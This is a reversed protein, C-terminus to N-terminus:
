SGFFSDPDAFKIGGEAVTHGTGTMTGAKWTLLGAVTVNGAGTVTGGSFTLRPLTIDYTFNVTGGAITTDGVDYAGSLTTNNFSPSEQGPTGFLVTGPRTLPSGAGLTYTGNTFNLTAGAAVKFTASNIGDGALALTGTEVDLLGTNDFRTDIITSFSS